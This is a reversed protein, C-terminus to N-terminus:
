HFHGVKSFYCNTVTNQLKTQLQNFPAMTQFPVHQQQWLLWYQWNPSIFQGIKDIFILFFKNDFIM